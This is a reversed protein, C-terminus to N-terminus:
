AQLIPNCRGNRQLDTDFANCANSAVDVDPVCYSQYAGTVKGWFNSSMDRQCLYITKTANLQYSTLFSRLGCYVNCIGSPTAVLYRYQNARTQYTTRTLTHDEYRVTNEPMPPKRFGSILFPYQTAFTNWATWEAGESQALCILLTVMVIKKLM